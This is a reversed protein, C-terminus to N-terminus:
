TRWKIQASCIIIIPKYKKASNAKVTSIALILYSGFILTKCFSHDATRATGLEIGVAPQFKKLGLILM